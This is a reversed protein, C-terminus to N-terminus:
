QELVRLGKGEFKNASVWYQLFHSINEQASYPVQCAPITTLPFDEKGSTMRVDFHRKGELATPKLVVIGFFPEVVHQECFQYFDSSYERSSYQLWPIVCVDKQHSVLYKYVLSQHQDPSLLDFAKGSRISTTSYWRSDAYGAVLIGSPLPTAHPDYNSWLMRQVSPTVVLNALTETM